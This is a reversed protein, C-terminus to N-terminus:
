LVAADAPHIRADVDLETALSALATELDGSALGAPVSVEFLMAYVPRAPEGITRTELDTINVGAAALLAAVRHLIGPRDAGFVSVVHPTGAAHEPGGPEIARVALGLDFGSAPARLATELDLAEVRDPADVVLVMAFHGSLITMSCDRLNCGQDFLAGTLAAVIGPQDAGFAWVAFTAM